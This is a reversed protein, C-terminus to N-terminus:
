GSPMEKLAESLRAIEARAAAARAPLNARLLAADM